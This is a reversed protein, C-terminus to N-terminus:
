EVLFRISRLLGDFRKDLEAESDATFMVHGHGQFTHPPVNLFDGPKRYIEIDHVNPDADAEPLGTIETLKGAESPFINRFGTWVPKEWPEVVPTRGMALDLVGEVMDVGTSLQVSRYIPGGGLRAAAELIVPEKGDRLRFEVHTAGTDIGLAKHAAATAAYLVDVQEPSLRTPTCAYVEEFYPGTPLPKDHIAICHTEGNVVLSEVSIEVGPVFEEVLIALGYEEVADRYLPDYDFGDWAGDRIFDFFEDLEAENEISRVYMSGGGIFPKLILPYGVTEAVKKAEEVTRALGFRPQPVNGAEAFAERMAYKDRAIYATRPSVHPLGFEAAVAAASPVSHEVFTLVARIPETEEEALRKAVEVTEPISTTDALVVRDVYEHEWTPEKVILLLREGHERAYDRARALHRRRSLNKTHLLLISM